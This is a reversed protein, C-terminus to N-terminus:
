KENIYKKLLDYFFSKPIIAYEGGSICNINKKIQINWLVCLPKDKLGVEENIKRIQPTIQTNKLQFYCPLINDSDFIDIKKDDLKKSESRATAINENGTLEKLENVIKREYSFGKTRSYKGSRRKKPIQIQKDM